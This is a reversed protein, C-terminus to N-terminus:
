QGTPASAPPLQLTVIALRHSGLRRVTAATQLNPNGILGDLAVQCRAASLENGAAGLVKTQGDAVLDFSASGAVGDLRLPVDLWVDSLHRSRGNYLGTVVGRLPAVGNANFTLLGHVVVAPRERAAKLQPPLAPELRTLVLGGGARRAEVRWGKVHWVQGANIVYAAQRALPVDNGAQNIIQAHTDVSLAFEVPVSIGDVLAPVAFDVEDVGPHKPSVGAEEGTLGLTADTQLPLAGRATFAPTPASENSHTAASSSCGALLSILAALAAITCFTRKM